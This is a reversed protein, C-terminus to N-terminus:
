YHRVIRKLHRGYNRLLQKVAEESGAQIQKFLSRLEDESEKEQSMPCEEAPLFTSGSLSGQWRRANLCPLSYSPVLLLYGRWSFTLRRAGAVSYAAATSCASRSGM